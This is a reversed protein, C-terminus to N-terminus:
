PLRQCHGAGRWSGFEARRRCVRTQDWDSGVVLTCAALTGTNSRLHPL